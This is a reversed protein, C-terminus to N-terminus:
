TQAGSATLARRRAILFFRPVRPRVQLKVPRRAHRAARAMADRQAELHLDAARDKAIQYNLQSYM